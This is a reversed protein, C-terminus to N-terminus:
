LSGYEVGRKFVVTTDRIKMGSKGMYINYSDYFFLYWVLVHGKDRNGELSGTRKVGLRNHVNQM